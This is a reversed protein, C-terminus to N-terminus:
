QQAYRETPLRDDPGSSDGSHGTGKHYVHGHRQTHGVESGGPNGFKLEHKPSIESDGLPPLIDEETDRDLM